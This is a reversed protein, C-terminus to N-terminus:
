SNAKKDAIPQWLKSKIVIVLGILGLIGSLSIAIIFAWTPNSCFGYGINVGIITALGYTGCGWYHKNDDTLLTKQPTPTTFPSPTQQEAKISKSMYADYKKCVFNFALAAFTAGIISGIPMNHIISGILVSSGGGIIGGIAALIVLLAGGLIGFFIYIFKKM